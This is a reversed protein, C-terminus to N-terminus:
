ESISSTIKLPPSGNTVGAMVKLNSDKKAFKQLEEEIVAKQSELKEKIKKLNSKLM